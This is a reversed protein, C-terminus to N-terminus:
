RLVNGAEAAAVLAKADSPLLFGQAVSAPL